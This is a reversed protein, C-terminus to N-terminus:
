PKEMILTDRKGIIESFSINTGDFGFHLDASAEAGGFACVEIATDAGITSSYFFLMSIEPISEGLCEVM